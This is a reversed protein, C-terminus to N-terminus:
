TTWVTVRPENALLSVGFLVDWADEWFLLLCTNIVGPSGSM